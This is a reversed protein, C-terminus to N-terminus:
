KQFFIVDFSEKEAFIYIYINEFFTLSVIVFMSFSIRLTIDIIFPYHVFQLILDILEIKM